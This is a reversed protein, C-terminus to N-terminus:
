WSGNTKTISPLSMRDPATPTPAPGASAENVGFSVLLDQGNVQLSKTEPTIYKM